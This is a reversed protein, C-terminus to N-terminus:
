LNFQFSTKSQRTKIIYNITHHIGFQLPDTQQFVSHSFFTAIRIDCIVIFGNFANFTGIRFFMMAKFLLFYRQFLLLLIRIRRKRLRYEMHKWFVLHFFIFLNCIVEAKIFVKFLGLDLSFNFRQCFGTLVSEFFFIRLLLPIRIM